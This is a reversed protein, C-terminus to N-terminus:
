VNSEFWMIINHDFTKTFAREELYKILEIKRDGKHHELRINKIRDFYQNELSYLIDYEAGECDMKCLDVSSIKNENIITELSITKVAEFKSEEEGSVKYNIQNYPSSAKPIYVIENDRGSVALNFPIIVENLNNDKINDCLIKYADLNPEFALVKKAGARAAYLSFLGINAGIDLVVGARPIEGYEKRCFIVLLTTADLPNNSLNILYNDKTTIKKIGTLDGTLYAKVIKWKSHFINSRYFMVGVDIAKPLLKSIRIKRGFLKM